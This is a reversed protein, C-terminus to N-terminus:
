YRGYKHVSEMMVKVNAPKADDLTSASNLIFGGNKGCVQILKKCYDEVDQPSGVQLLAPPVNGSITCYGGLIEKARFMDVEDFRVFFKGKPLDLFYELRSDVKGECFIGPTYGLDITSKIAKKWTAWSFTEFQKKSLFRDSSYHFAGADCRQPAKAPVARALRWEYIKECAAKLKEPRQFMDSVTGHLGRLFSAVIDFPEGGIGGPYFLPPYGLRSHEDVWDEFYGYKAQEEGAKLIAQAMQQFEPTAFFPSIKIFGSVTGAMKDGLLPLKAFPGMKGFVRPIYYRLMFDTPDTIFIDYEEPKMKEEELFQIPINDPLTKGPWRIQRMDLAELAAGSINSHPMLQFLDPEFDLLMKYVLSRYQPSDYYMLSPTKGAYNVPFHGGRMVVPVRDPIKGGVTDMVRKEREARLEDVSKGHKKEVRNKVDNIFGTEKSVSTVM